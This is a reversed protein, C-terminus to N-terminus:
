SPDRPLGLVREGIINGHIESSGADTTDVRLFLFTYQDDSFHFEGPTM